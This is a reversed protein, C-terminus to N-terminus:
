ESATDTGLLEIEFILVSNPPISGAGAEGFALSPPIILQRKGGVQMGSIGEDWGPIVSGGGLPFETPEGREVSSDLQRGSEQLWGTYHVTVLSGAEALEGDGVVIDYYQLGSDTTIFDEEAVETLLIPEISDLLKVELLLIEGPQAAQGALEAPILLQRHGGVAMGVIGEDWDNLFIEAAGLTYIAPQGQDESSALMAGDQIWATFHISIRDGEAVEEGDGVEIDFIRIGSPLDEFDDDDVEAPQPPKVIDVLEVEFTLTANPPIANGAGTAGYALNPPIILTAKGGQNMLAIGEDWGRIVDGQGLVFSFPTGREVSSDFVTGDELMGTYHVFVRDGAVPMPGDGAEVEIYELEGVEQEALVSEQTDSVESEQSDEAPDETM